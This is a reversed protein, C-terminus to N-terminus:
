HAETPSRHAETPSRRAEVPRMLRFGAAVLALCAAAGLAANGAALRLQGSDLIPGAVAPGASSGAVVLTILWAFAETTTGRPALEAILGFAATLMPALFLGTLGVLPLMLPPDPVLVLLSYSAFLGAAFLLIRMRPQSRWRIAGYALAGVLAGTANLALLVPAGGPLPTQEAYAVVLLNLTGLAYGLGAPALLLIALGGHRLPGLWHRRAPREPRWRRSPAALAFSTVGVLILVVQVWLAARPSVVAACAAVTLPGGVFVLEQAASDIAYANDLHERRVVDPWLVRLCPELPPTFAGAVLAGAIVTVRGAPALAILTFGAASLLGTTVLVRPQGVRDVVRGVVPSGAASALAYVAAVGGVFAYDAGTERLALPIAIAAMAVPLRGVWSGVLLRIVHPRGLVERYAAFPGPRRDPRSESYMSAQQGATHAPSEPSPM